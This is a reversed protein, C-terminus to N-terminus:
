LWYKENPIRIIMKDTDIVIGLFTIVTKPVETKDEALPIGFESCTKRFSSMLLKVYKLLAEQLYLITKYFLKKVMVMDNMEVAIMLATRGEESAMNVDAHPMLLLLIEMDSNVIATFLLPQGSDNFVNTDMGLKLCQKLASVDGNVVAQHLSLNSIFAKMKKDKLTLTGSDTTLIVHQYFVEDVKAGM